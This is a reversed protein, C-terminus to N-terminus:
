FSVQWLYEAGDPAFWRVVLITDRSPDAGSVTARVAAGPRVVAPASVTFTSSGLVSVSVGRLEHDGANVLRYDPASARDVVWPVRYALPASRRTFSPRPVARRRIM